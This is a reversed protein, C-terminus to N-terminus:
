LLMLRHDRRHLAAVLHHGLAAQDAGDHVQSIVADRDLRTLVRANDDCAHLDGAHEVGRLRGASMATRFSRKMPSGTSRWFAAGTSCIVSSIRVSMRSMNSVM